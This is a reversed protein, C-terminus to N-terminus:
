APGPANELRRVVTAIHRLWVRRQEWPQETGLVAFRYTRMGSGVQVTIPEPSWAVEPVEMEIPRGLLRDCEALDLGVLLGEGQRQIPSYEGEDFPLLKYKSWTNPPYKASASGPYVTVDHDILAELWAILIWRM